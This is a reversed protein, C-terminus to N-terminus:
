TPLRTSAYTSTPTAPPPPAASPPKSSPEPPSKSPATASSRAKKVTQAAFSETKQQGPALPAVPSTFCDEEDVVLSGDLTFTGATGYVCAAGNKDRATLVLSWDGRGNCQPYHMVSFADYGTLPKWDRDEFCKGSEPRTHEHRFGISHGLEHRLIGTLTLKGGPELDFSSNDILVNRSPRNENPFFARALYDGGANVPRVDFVVTTNAATCTADQTADYVFDVAAVEEWAKTASDMERVVDAHRSGFTTSVCYTLHKKRLPDWKNDMGSAQDLVLKTTQRPKVNQEYFELLLKESAIPTDGNVIFKGGEFPERYVTAKFDEFSLAARMRRARDANDALTQEAAAVAAATAEIKPEAAVPPPTPEAPAPAAAVPPPAPEKTKDKDDCCATLALAACFAITACFSTAFSKM